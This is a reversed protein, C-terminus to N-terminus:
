FRLCRIILGLLDSKSLFTLNTSQVKQVKKPLNQNWDFPFVHSFKQVYTYLFLITYFHSQKRKSFLVIEKVFKKDFICTKPIFTDCNLAFQTVKDVEKTEYIGSLHRSNLSADDLYVLTMSVNNLNPGFM